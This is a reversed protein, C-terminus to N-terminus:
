KWWDRGFLRFKARRCIERIRRFLFRTYYIRRAHASLSGVIGYAKLYERDTVLHNKQTIRVDNDVNCAHVVEIWMADDTEEYLCHCDKYRDIYIHSGHGYVTKPLQSDNSLAEFFSVFHNNKYVIHTAINLETYYQLGHVFSVFTNPLIGSAITQLREVFDKRLADDNDLYTTLLFQESPGSEKQLKSVIKQILQVFQLSYNPQVRIPTFQPCIKKYDAFRETYQQPTEADFLVIWTFNGQTQAAVSPLCYTEFLRFREKLWEATQTKGGRKDHPWLRLNFRTIIYHLM